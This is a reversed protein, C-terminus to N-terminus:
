PMASGSPTFLGLIGAALALLAAVSIGAHVSPHRSSLGIAGVALFIAQVARSPHLAPRDLLITTALALFLALAIWGSFYRLRISFYFEQWSEVRDPSSPILTAALFYLTVAPGLAILFRAFTWEVARFSWFDWFAASMTLCLAVLGVLHVWYRRSLALSDPLGGIVRAVAFSLILAYGAALYEFLTM